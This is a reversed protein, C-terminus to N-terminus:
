VRRPRGQRRGRNLPENDRLAIRKALLPFGETRHPIGTAGIQEAQFDPDLVTEIVKIERALRAMGERASRSLLAAKAGSLAANEVFSVANPDCDPFLGIIAARLPDISVGTGGTLVVRDVKDGGHRKLLIRASAQVAAKAMQLSRIDHQTLAIRPEAERVLYTLSRYEERVRSTLAAKDPDMTGDRGMLGTLRLEALADILGARCFGGIDFGEVSAAFEPEDSWYPSGIVRYRPEFSEPDIRLSHIAGPVVHRGAELNVGELVSGAPPAAAFIRGHAGLVIETTTGIDILLTVEDGQGVGCQYAAALVDSGVHGGMLPLIHVLAGPALPLELEKASLDLPEAVVPTYPATGLESPDLGLLLHHMVPDAVFVADLIQESELAAEDALAKIAAKIASRILTTMENFGGPTSIGYTIRSIPDSGFRILPNIISKQAMLDGKVLNNLSVHVSSAGIDVAFGAPVVQDPSQIVVVRGNNVGIQVIWDSKRLRQQLIRLVDLGIEIGFVSYQDALALAVRRADSSPDHIDPETVKVTYYRIVQDAGLSFDANL